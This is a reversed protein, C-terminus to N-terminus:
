FYVKVASERELDMSNRWQFSVTPMLRVAMIVFSTSINDNKWFLSIKIIIIIKSAWPNWLLFFQKYPHIFCLIGWPGGLGWLFIWLYEANIIVQNMKFCKVLILQMKSVKKFLDWTVGQGNAKRCPRKRQKLPRIDNGKERKKWWGKEREKEGGGKGIWPTCALATCFCCQKTGVEMKGNQTKNPKSVVTRSQKSIRGM